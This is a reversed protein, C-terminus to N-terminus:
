RPFHASSQTSKKRAKTSKAVDPDLVIVNTGAAFRRAYKGRIGKSFDYEARMQDKDAKRRVSKM